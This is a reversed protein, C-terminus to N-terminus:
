KKRELLFISRQSDKIRKEEIVHFFFLFGKLFNDRSYSAKGATEPLLLVKEDDKPVFEIILWKCLSALHGAVKEFPINNTIVLHHIVALAQILEPKSRDSLGVRETNAWGISPSPNVADFLLSYVSTNHEEKNYKYNKEIALSDSDLSLVIRDPTSVLRSFYGDNAGIDWVITPNIRDVFTKVLLAKNLRSVDSYHIEKDYDKWQTTDARNLDLKTIFSMLHDIMAFLNTKSISRPKLAIKKNQNGEISKAHLHIHFLPVFSLWSKLPLLKSTMKLSVGNVGLRTLTQYEAGLYVCLCLPNLFHECFQKYGIWSQGEEYKAFSLTDIFVPKCGKFQVNFASADKLIMNYKLSQKMIKLTLLAADKLQSFSWEYPYTIVPIREPQIIAAFDAHPIKEKVIEHKILLEQEFLVNSLGSTNLLQFHELFNEAIGRYIRGDHEFVYGSPDRFSSQDRQM